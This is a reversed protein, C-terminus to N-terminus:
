NEWPVEVNLKLDKLKKKLGQLDDREDADWITVKKIIGPKYKLNKVIVEKENKFSNILEQWTWEGSPDKFSDLYDKENKFGTVYLCIDPHKKFFTETYEIDIGGQRYLEAGDFDIRVDGFADNNGSNEDKSFSIFQKDKAPSAKGKRILDYLWEVDTTRYLVQSQKFAEYLKLHKVNKYIVNLVSNNSPEWLRPAM